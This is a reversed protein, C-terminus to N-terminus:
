NEMKGSNKNLQIIKSFSHSSDQPLLHKEAKNKWRGWKRDKGKDRM